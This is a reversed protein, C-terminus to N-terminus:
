ERLDLWQEANPKGRLSSREADSMKDLEAKIADYLGAHAPMRDLRAFAAPDFTSMRWGTWEVQTVCLKRLGESFKSYSRSAPRHPPLTSPGGEVALEWQGMWRGHKVAFVRTSGKLTHLVFSFRGDVGPGQVGGAIERGSCESLQRVAVSVTAELDAKLDYPLRTM